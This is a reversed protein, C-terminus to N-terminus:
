NLTDAAGSDAAEAAPTQRKLLPALFNQLLAQQKSQPHFSLEDEAVVIFKEQRIKPLQWNKLKRELWSGWAGLFPKELWAQLSSGRDLPPEALEANPLLCLLWSANGDQFQWIAHPYALPRLKVYEAATYFNRLQTIAKPGALYHNLCFRDAVHRGHRRLGLVQFYATVLTRTLWLYRPDAIILLDIDSASKEQGLAQSGALAAGRVFPLFKLGPAFRRLLKERRIGYFYNELRLVALQQRGALCYFGLACVVAGSLEEHLCRLLEAAGTEPRPADPGLKGPQIEGQRDLAPLLEAMDPLLFRQLELLTLPYDQLDFFRLTELIREKLM